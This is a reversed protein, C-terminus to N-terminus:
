SGAPLTFRALYVQTTRGNRKSAWMLYQGDPSFVPLVDAGGTFTIRTKRSGDSRMLYLEYNDHGHASTAYIIHQGDPHWYPGWNVTEGRTLQRENTLGMIMGSAHYNVDAAYIQLLDNGKRDSRYVLQRGDPSFFAGGDYGPTNTLRIAESGDSRMVYLEQDDTRNSTFVIWNGDPSYACEADYAQNETLPHVALNVIAGPAAAAIAAQWGDARYIEMGAPFSWRYDQGGRQYGATPEQADEKGATSAFILSRGNPAFYGCTNRSDHPSIRMPRSIGNIGGEDTRVRVLYMQYHQEGTPVAQFVIWRMDPSFYAEGAKEFGSTLQIVNSLCDDESTTATPNNELVCGTLLACLALSWLHPIRMCYIIGDGWGGRM